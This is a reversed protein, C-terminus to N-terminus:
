YRECIWRVIVIIGALASYLEVRTAGVSFEVEGDTDDLNIKM